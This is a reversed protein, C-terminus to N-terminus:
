EMWSPLARRGGVGAEDLMLRIVRHEDSHDHDTAEQQPQRSPGVTWSTVGSALGRDAVMWGSAMVDRLETDGPETGRYSRRVKGCSVRNASSGIRQRIRLLGGGRIGGPAGPTRAALVGSAAQSDAFGARRAESNQAPPGRQPTPAALRARLLLSRGGQRGRHRLPKVFASGAPRDEKSSTFNTWRDTVGVLV